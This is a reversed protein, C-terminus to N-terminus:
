AGVIISGPVEVTKWGLKELGQQFAAAWRRAEPDSESIAVLVGIRRMREPQEGRAALAAM